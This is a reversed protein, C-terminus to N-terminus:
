AIHLTNKKVNMSENISHHLSQNLSQYTPQNTPQNTSYRAFCTSWYNHDRAQAQLREVSEVKWEKTRPVLERMDIDPMRPVFPVMM